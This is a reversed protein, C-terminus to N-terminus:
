DRLTRGTARTPKPELNAVHELMLRHIFIYGGGVKQLLIRQTAYDLFRAYNWPIYGDLYLILRLILHQVCAEGAGFLGFLLGAITGLFLPVDVMLTVITLGVVGILAFVAANRASRWIGQNPITKMEIDPGTLGRLLVFIIGVGLGSLLGYVLSYILRDSLEFVLGYISTLSMAFVPGCFLGVALGILLNQRAKAWSWRLTEVPRIEHSILGFILSVLVGGTLGFILGYVQGVAMGSILTGVVGGGLGCIIGAFLGIGLAYLWRQARNPLWDPQMQEILFVTEAQRLLQQALWILWQQAQQKAYLTNGTRKQLMRDLYTDFLHRRREELSMNPLATLALGRYALTMISLMLPSQALTQLTTDAELSERVAALESGASALYQRIQLPTLPQLCIAGQFRLRQNLGEYDRLRSCVVMETQGHLRSFQNLALVCDQRRDVEVEDLGDLLLLLQETQVWIQAIERSVQYKVTLEQELWDAIPQRPGAWGSLNFVVPLPQEPQLDARQLLERALELLTTTKGSGPEGLILLTRGAGLEDFLHIVKVGAPLSRREQGAEWIMGWPRELADGYQTLGLELLVRDHLSTELVGKIWYNRVKNLLIQRNRYDQRNSSVAPPSAHPGPRPSAPLTLTQDSPSPEPLRDVVTPPSQLATLMDGASAYRDVWQTQIARDLVAILRADFCHGSHWDVRGTQPNRQLQHPLFGTLAYIATWSLSYLDSAFVPCGAAQEPPMFGPTGIAISATFQGDPDVTLHLMEKAAGFDILVPKGDQQRLILNSPKIDRHIIGKHHIYHLLNLVEGLIVTIEQEGMRGQRQVRDRLTEGEIWEQILYFQGQEAFYAYLKPLQSSQNALDELIAAERQFREQIFQFTGAHHVIPKLQKIVCRRGSPLHTDEALFTDGFGGSALAQIIRYRNNLLPATM